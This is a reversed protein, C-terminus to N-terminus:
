QFRENLLNFEQNKKEHLNVNLYSDLSSLIAEEGGTKQPM